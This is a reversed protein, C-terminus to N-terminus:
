PLKPKNKTDGKIKTLVESVIAGEKFFQSKKSEILQKLCKSMNRVNETLIHSKQSEAISDFGEEYISLIKALCSGMGMSLNLLEHLEDANRVTSGLIRLLAQFERKDSESVFGKEKNVLQVVGTVQGSSDVLPGIMM